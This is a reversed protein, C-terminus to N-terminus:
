ISRLFGKWLPFAKKIIMAIVWMIAIIILQGIKIWFCGFGDASNFTM